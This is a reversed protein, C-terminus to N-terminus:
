RALAEAIEARAARKARARDTQRDIKTRRPMVFQEGSESVYIKM